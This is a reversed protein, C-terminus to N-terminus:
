ITSLLSDSIVMQQRRVRGFKTKKEYLLKRVKFHWDSVKLFRVNELPVVGVASSYHSEMASIGSMITYLDLGISLVALSIKPLPLDRL